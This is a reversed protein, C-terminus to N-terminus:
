FGYHSIMESGDSHSNDFLCCYWANSLVYLSPFGWESNPICIPATVISFPTYIGGFILCPVVMHDLLEEGPYKGSSFSSVLKFFFFIYAGM